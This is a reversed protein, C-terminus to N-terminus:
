TEVLPRYATPDVRFGWACAEKCTRTDPPVRLVVRKGTSPCQVRYLVIPEDEQQDVRLLDCPQGGGDVWSDLVKADVLDLFRKYGVIQIMGRRVEVNEQELIEKGTILHPEEIWHRKIAMGDWFYHQFGDAWEACPGDQCHLRGAENKKLYKPRAVHISVVDFFMSDWVGSSAFKLWADFEANDKIVGIERFFDYFATWGADFGIGTSSWSYMKLSDGSYKQKMEDTIIDEARVLETEYEGELYDAKGKKPTPYVEKDFYNAIVQAEYPSRCLVVQRPKKVKALSYLWEVSEVVDERISTDGGLAFNLWKDRIVPILAEQEPTLETLM